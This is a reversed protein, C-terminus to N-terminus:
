EDSGGSRALRSAPDAEAPEPGGDWSAVYGPVADPGCDLLSTGAASPAGPWIPAVGALHVGRALGDDGVGAETPSVADPTELLVVLSRDGGNESWAVHFRQPAAGLRLRCAPRGGARVVVRQDARGAPAYAALELVAGVSGPLGNVVLIGSPGLSWDLVAEPPPGGLIEAQRPYPQFPMAECAIGLRGLGARYAALYVAPPPVVSPPKHWRVTRGLAALFVADEDPAGGTGCAGSRLVAFAREQVAMQRGSVRNHLFASAGLVGAVGACGLRMAFRGRPGAFSGLLALVAAAAVGIGLAATRSDMYTCEGMGCWVRYKATLAHPLTNAWMWLLSAALALVAGRRAQPATWLAPLLRWGLWIGLVLPIASLVVDWGGAPPRPLYPFVTGGVLHRLQLSAIDALPAPSFQNGDYRSSFGLRFASYAVLTGVIVPAHFRFASARRGPKAMAIALVALAAGEVVAYEMVFCLAAMAAGLALRGGTRAPIGGALRLHAAVLGLLPLTVLLPYANPPLHHAVMPMTCFAVLLAPRTLPVGTWRALLLAFGFTVVGMAAVAILRGAAFEQLVTGLLVLAMGPYLGVRGQEVAYGHVQKLLETPADWLSLVAYQWFNDDASQHFAALFPWLQVVSFVALAADVLAAPGRREADGAAPQAPRHSPTATGSGVPEAPAPGGCRARNQRSCGWKYRYM